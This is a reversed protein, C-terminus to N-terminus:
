TGGERARGREPAVGQRLRRHLHARALHIQVTQHSLAAGRQRRLRGGFWNRTMSHAALASHGVQIARLPALQNVKVRSRDPIVRCLDIGAICRAM